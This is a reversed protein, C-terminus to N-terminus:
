FIDLWLEHILDDDLFDNSESLKEAYLHLKSYYGLIAKITVTGVGCLTDFKFEVCQCTNSIHLDM